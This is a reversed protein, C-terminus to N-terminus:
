EAYSHDPHFQRHIENAVLTGILEEYTMPPQEEVEYDDDFDISQRKDM